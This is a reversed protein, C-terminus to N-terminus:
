SSLAALFADINGAAAAAFPEYMMTDHTAGELLLDSRVDLDERMSALAAPTILGATGPFFGQEARILAVPCRAARLEAAM